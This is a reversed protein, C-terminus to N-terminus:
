HNRAELHSYSGGLSCDLPHQWRGGRLNSLLQPFALLLTFLSISPGWIASTCVFPIFETLGSAQMKEYISHLNRSKIDSRQHESQRSGKSCVQIYGLTGRGGHLLKRLAVSISHGPSLTKFMGVMYFLERSESHSYIKETLLKPLWSPVWLLNREEVQVEHSVLVYYWFFSVLSCLSTHGKLHPIPLLLLM